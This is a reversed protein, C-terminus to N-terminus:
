NYYSYVQHVIKESSEVGKAKVYMSTVAPAFLEETEKVCREQRQSEEQPRDPFFAALIRWILYNNLIERGLETANYDKVLKTIGELFEVQIMVETEENLLEVSKKERMNEKELPKRSVTDHRYSLADQFFRHWDLFNFRQNLEKLTVSKLNKSNTPKETINGLKHEFEIVDSTKKDIM